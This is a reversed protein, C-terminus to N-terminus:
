APLHFSSPTSAAMLHLDIVAWVSSPSLVRSSFFLLLYFLLSYEMFGAEFEGLLCSRLFSFSLQFLLCPSNLDMKRGEDGEAHLSMWCLVKLPFNRRMLYRCNTRAHACMIIGMISVNPGCLSSCSSPVVLGSGDGPYTPCMSLLISFSWLCSNTRLQSWTMGLSEADKRLTITLNPVLPSVLFLCSSEVSTFSIVVAPYSCLTSSPSNFFLIAPNRKVNNVRLLHVLPLSIICLFM